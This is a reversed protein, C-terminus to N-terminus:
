SLTPTTWDVWYSEDFGNQNSSDTRLINTNAGSNGKLFKNIFADLESQQSSPFACHNHGGVQSVGMRDGAGLASWVKNATKMCGWTARAGLWEMSTNEIIFLGRPAVLAAILHHDFPLMPVQNVYAEFAKSMWVNETIIQSATQVNTGQQKQQDSIRWCAAGGSGSEQPITLAVRKDFAGAFLAGKGNRSCGTVAIRKPDINHGTTVELADIIRSVGWAWATLASATHGSGYLTYFKGQGRSGTNTQAAIDDNNFNIAAVGGPTPISGGGYGIIAPFPATGSPSSITVQFSISKGAESVNITLRGGSYSGTVSSPKPPLTGAEYRQVLQLIEAQRCEWQAKTTVKQGNFFTFPDNLRPVSKLTISSPLTPCTGPNVPGPTTTPSSTPPDVTSTPPTYTPTPTPTPVATTPGAGPICQSYYPNQYNCYSGSVCQTPGNYGQGGCQGWLQQTQAFAPLVLALAVLSSKLTM